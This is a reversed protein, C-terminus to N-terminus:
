QRPQDPILIKGLVPSVFTDALAEMYVTDWLTGGMLKSKHRVGITRFGAKEYARIGALNYAHVRLLVNSLGLATFAHDLMLTTAETGYGKGRADAEGILIGFEATRNSHDIDVLMAYGILRWTPREYLAFCDSTPAAFVGTEFAAATRALPRPRPLSVWTRVVSPDNQWRNFAQFQNASVPGLAVHAGV